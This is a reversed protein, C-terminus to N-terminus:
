QCKAGLEVRRTDNATLKGVSRQDAHVIAIRKSEAASGARPTAVTSTRTLSRLETKRVGAPASGGFGTRICRLVNCGIWKRLTPM